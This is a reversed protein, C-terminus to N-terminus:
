SAASHLIHRLCVDDELSSTVGLDRMSDVFVKPADFVRIIKEESGSIFRTRSLFAVDEMDYGHIQPRGLEHWTQIGERTWPAHLRATQDASVSVLYEGNPEWALSSVEDFHGTPSIIAKWAGNEEGKRWCHFSGGWGHAIVSRNHKGFLAGFFGLNTGGIEGFRSATLWLQSAVDQEWLIMSRDSSASLLTPYPGTYDTQWHLGTVWGDHGLLVSESTM